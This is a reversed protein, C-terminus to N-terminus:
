AGLDMDMADADAGLIEDLFGEPVSALPSSAFAHHCADRLDAMARRARAVVPHDYVGAADIRQTPDSRMTHRILAFLEPSEGLDVQSFDDHRLRHWPEGQDPVIINTATELMTMGFSFMDAAKGYRGQLIEPALYVKDGEREFGTSRLLQTEHDGAGAVSAPVLSPRPWRSAMGFDGIKFRGEGTVFINAPKLDLHIVGADHIFRMGSSLDALIKWVRAEELKPFARGYEWLFHAFNGLECIETRIYLVADQEWSDVYGLVNPHRSSAGHTAASYAQSLHQLIEVEERLRLRHRVGEFRKSKKVAWVEGTAEADKRRVKMVKGFEGSGIEAIEVFEREFKGPMDDESPKLWGSNLIGLSPRPRVISAAQTQGTARQPLPPVKFPSAQPVNGNVLASQGRRHHLQFPQSISPRTKDAPAAPRLTPSPHTVSTMTSSSSNSATRNPSLRSSVAPKAPSLHSPIRPPPLHWGSTNGGTPTGPYSGDTSGSGGSTTSIAGSSSRRLLWSARGGKGASPRGLGLGEYKPKEKRDGPADDEDSSDGGRGFGKKGKKATGLMPFAAPLSKRPKGKKKGGKGGEAEEEGFDFGVKSAVASQWPRAAAIRARKQPTGPPRKPQADRNQAEVLTKVIFADVDSEVHVGALPFSDSSSMSGFSPWGSELSPGFGPTVLEQDSSAITSVSTSAPPMVLSVSGSRGLGMGMNRAGDRAATAMAGGYHEEDESLVVGSDRPKYKKELKPVGAKGRPSPTSATLSFSFSTDPPHWSFSDDGTGEDDDRASKNFSVNTSASGFFLDEEDETGVDITRMDMPIFDEDEDDIDGMEQDDTDHGGPPLPSSSQLPSGWSGLSSPEFMPVPGAYSHRAAAQPRGLLPLPRPASSQPPSDSDMNIIKNHRVSGKSPTSLTPTASTRPIAPGFFLTASGSSEFRRQPPRLQTPSMAQTRARSFSTSKTRSRRSMASHNSNATNTRSRRAPSASSSSSASTTRSRTRPFAVSSFSPLPPVPASMKAFKQSEGAASEMLEWSVPRSKARRKTVHGGPSVDVAEEEGDKGTGSLGKNEKSKRRTLGKEEDIQLRGITQHSGKLFGETEAKPRQVRFKPAALPALRDFSGEGSSKTVSLPTLARKRYPTTVPLPTPKRKIGTTTGTLKEELAVPTVSREGHGPFSYIRLPSPSLSPASDPTRANSFLPPTQKIPTKLALPNPPPILTPPPMTPRQAQRKRPARATPAPASSSGTSLFLGDDDDDEVPINRMSAKGKNDAARTSHVSNRSPRSETQLNKFPASLRYSSQFLDEPENALDSDLEAQSAGPQFLSKRRLPSPTLMPSDYVPRRSM